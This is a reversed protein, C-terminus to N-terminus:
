GCRLVKAGVGEGAALDALAELAREFPYATCAPLLRHKDALVLFDRVDQRTINAVSKIEKELWLHRAYDLDLLSRQDDREKRIANIVLRGKPALAELARIVPMWAPTTDIIASCPFPPREAIDGTWTAGLARALERESGRRAFVAVPSDPLLVRALQLVQHGSAGFGMLGLAAGNRVGALLLSRYGIAGGCLLPAAQLDSIREPVPHAFAAAVTMREAYGGQIDRGTAKFAPCLNEAGTRCYPCDGCAGGIWAVGVRQGLWGEDTGRGVGIVRGVVQHGPVVPYSPPPLRGSLEDLETHCIGCVHVRLLLEGEGPEPEPMGVLRLPPVSSGPDAVGTITWAKM